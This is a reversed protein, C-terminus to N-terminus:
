KNKNVKYAIIVPPPEYFHQAKDAAPLSFYIIGEKANYAGGSVQPKFTENRKVDFMTDFPTKFVAYEYPKVEYSKKNGQKVLYLDALDFFWYYNFSDDPDYQCYGGCLRGGKQQIKYGGGSNVMNMSGFVAYTRTGPIMLGYFARSGQSWLDNDGVLAPDYADAFAKGPSRDGSYNYQVNGTWEAFSLWGRDNKSMIHSLSYDLISVTNILGNIKGPSNIIDGSDLVLASPGMPWRGNIPYGSAAGNIYDGQFLKQLDNPIPSIWLAVHARGEFEFFGDITSNAMDNANRIVLSTLTNRANADYYNYAHVLLEGKIYAMGGVKNLHQTNETSLRDLVRIFPQKPAPTMNFESVVTSNVLEPIEFEAISNENTHGSLFLSHADPNYAIQGSSAGTRSEGYSGSKIRFGGVYELANISILPLTMLESMTTKPRHENVFLSLKINTKMGTNEAAYLLSAHFLYSVFLCLVPLFFLKKVTFRDIKIITM